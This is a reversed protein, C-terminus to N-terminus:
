DAWELSASYEGDPREITVPGRWHEEDQPLQSLADALLEYTDDSADQDEGLVAQCDIIECDDTWVGRGAWVGDKYITIICARSAKNDGDVDMADRYSENM